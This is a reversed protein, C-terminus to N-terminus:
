AQKATVAAGSRLRIVNNAFLIGVIVLGLGILANPTIHEGLLTSGYVLAFPPTLYTVMSSRTAGVKDILWYLLIYAIATGFVSLAVVSALAPLSPLARPVGHLVLAVPALMIAGCTLQGTAPVLAPMGRFANRAYVGSVGYCAAAVLVALQSQTDANGLSLDGIGVAVMVGVFGLVLGFLRLGTLHESRMWIYVILATFLPTTANLISAMSSPIHQEGWTILLFPLILGIFASIAFARWTQWSAPLRQGRGYLVGLLIVAALSLRVAVLTEPAMEAVGVKIFMFSAGWLAGLLLLVALYRTKM